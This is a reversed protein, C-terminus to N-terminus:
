GTASMARARRTAIRAAAFVGLAMLMFTASLRLAMAPLEVWDMGRFEGGFSLRPALRLLIEYLIQSLLVAVLVAFAKRLGRLFAAGFVIGMLMPQVLAMAGYAPHPSYNEDLGNLPTFALQATWSPDGLIAALMEGLSIARIVGIEFPILLALGPGAMMAAVILSVAVGNQRVPQASSRMLFFAQGAIASAMTMWGLHAFAYTRFQAFVEDGMVQLTRYPALINFSDFLVLAAFTLAGFIVLVVKLKLEGSAVAWFATAVPLAALTVHWGSEWGSVSCLAIFRNPAFDVVCIAFTFFLLSIALAGADERKRLAMAAAAAALLVYAHMPMGLFIEVESPCGDPLVFTRTAWFIAAPLLLALAVFIRSGLAAAAAVAAIPALLTFDFEARYFYEGTRLTLSVGWATLLLALFWAVHKM